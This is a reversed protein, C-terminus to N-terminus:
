LQEDNKTGSQAGGENYRNAQASGPVTSNDFRKRANKQEADNKKNAKAM